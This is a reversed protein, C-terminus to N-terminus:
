KNVSVRYDSELYRDDPLKKKTAKKITQNERKRRQKIRTQKTDDVGNFQVSSFQVASCQVASFERTSHAQDILWKRHTEVSDNIFENIAIEFIPVSNNSKLKDNSLTM